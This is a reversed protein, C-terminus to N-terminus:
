PSQANELTFKRGCLLDTLSRMLLPLLSAYQTLDIVMVCINDMSGRKYAEEMLSKAAEQPNTYQTVLEAAEENSITDWVGDSAVVIFLDQDTRIFKKVEPEAAVLPKM